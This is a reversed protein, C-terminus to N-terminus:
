AWVDRPLARHRSISKPAIIHVIGGSRMFAARSCQM